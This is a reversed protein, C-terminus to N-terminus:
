FIKFENKEKLHYNNKGKSMGSYPFNVLGTTVLRLSGVNAIM